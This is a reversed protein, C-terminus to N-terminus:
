AIFLPFTQDSTAEIGCVKGTKSIQDLREVLQYAVTIHCCATQIKIVQIRRFM